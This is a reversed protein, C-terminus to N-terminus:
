TRFVWHILSEGALGDVVGPDTATITYAARIAALLRAQLTAAGLNLLAAVKAAPVPPNAAAATAVLLPEHRPRDVLAEISMGLIALVGARGALRAIVAGRSAAPTAHLEALLYAGQRRYANAELGQKAPFQVKAGAGAADDAAHTLEHVVASRDYLDTVDLSTPVYVTDGKLGNSQAATVYVAATGAAGPMRAYVAPTLADVKVRGALVDAAIPLGAARAVAYVASAAAIDGASSDTAAALGAQLLGTVLVGQIRGYAIAAAAPRRFGGSRTLLEREAAADASAHEAVATGFDFAVLATVARGLPATVTAPLPDRELDAVRALAAATITALTFTVSAGAVLPVASLLAANGADTLGAMFMRENDDVTGHFALAAERLTRLEPSGLAGAAALPKARRMFDLRLEVGETFSFGVPNGVADSVTLRHVLCGARPHSSVSVPGTRSAMSAAVAAAEVEAPDNASSAASRAPHAADPGANDPGLNGQQALHALEHALVQERVPASARDVAESLVVQRGATFAQAGVTRTAPDDSRIPVDSLDHGLRTGAADVVSGTWPPREPADSGSARPLREVAQQSRHREGPM